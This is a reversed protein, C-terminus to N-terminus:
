SLLVTTPPPPNNGSHHTMYFLALEYLVEDVSYASREVVDTAPDQYALLKKCVELLDAPNQM